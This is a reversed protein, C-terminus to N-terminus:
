LEDDSLAALVARQEARTLTALGKEIDISPLYDVWASLAEAPLLALLEQRELDELREFAAAVDGPHAEKAIALIREISLSQLAELITEVDLPLQGTVDGEGM